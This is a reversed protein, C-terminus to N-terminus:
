AIQGRPVRHPRPADFTFVSLDGTLCCAPNHDPVFITLFYDDKPLHRWTLSVSKGAPITSTSIETDFILGKQELSVFYDSIPCNLAPGTGPAPAWNARLTVKLGGNKVPFTRSNLVRLCIKMTSTFDAPTPPPLVEPAPTAALGLSVPCAPPNEPSAFTKPTNDLIPGRTGTRMDFLGYTVEISKAFFEAGPFYELVKSEYWLVQNLDYVRLIAPEEVSANMQRNLGTHAIIINRAENGPGHLNKLPRRRTQGHLLHAPIWARSLGLAKICAFQKPYVSSDAL